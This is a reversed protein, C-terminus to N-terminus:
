TLAISTVFTTSIFNFTLNEEDKTSVESGAVFHVEKIHHLSTNGFKSEHPVQCCCIHLANDYSVHHMVYNVVKM